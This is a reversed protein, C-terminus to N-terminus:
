TVIAGATINLEAIKFAKLYGIIAIRFEQGALQEVSNFYDENQVRIEDRGRLYYKRARGDYMEWKWQYTLDPELTIKLEKIVVANIFDRAANCINLVQRSEINKVIANDYIIEVELEGPNKYIITEM